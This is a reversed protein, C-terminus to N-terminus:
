VSKELLAKHAKGSVIIGLTADDNLLGKDAFDQLMSSVAQALSSDDQLARKDKLRELVQLVPAKDGGNGVEFAGDTGAIIIEGSAFSKSHQIYVPQGTLGYAGLAGGLVNGTRHTVMLQIGQELDGRVLYIRGDGLYTVLFNDESEIIGIITTEFGDRKGLKELATNGLQVIARRYARELVNVRLRKRRKHTQEIEEHFANVVIQAAEGGFPSNTVGDAIFLVKWDGLYGVKYQDENKPKTGRLSSCAILGVGGHGYGLIENSNM